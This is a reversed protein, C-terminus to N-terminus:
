GGFFWDQRRSSLKTPSLDEFSSDERERHRKAPASEKRQISDNHPTPKEPNEIALTSQWGRGGSSLITGRLSKFFREGRSKLPPINAAIIGLSAEVFSGLTLPVTNWTADPSVFLQNIGIFKVIGVTSALLGLGMICAVAIRSRLPQNLTFIFTLPLLSFEFDTLGHIVSTGIITQRVHEPSQCHGPVSLDWYLKFPKCYTLELVCTVIAVSVTIFISIYM